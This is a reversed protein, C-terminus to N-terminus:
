GVNDIAAPGSPLRATTQHVVRHTLAELDRAALAGKCLRTLLVNQFVGGTLGVTRIGRARAARRASIAVAEAVAVHFGRALAQASAGALVRDALDRILPRYDIIGDPAVPLPLDAALVSREALVELENAARAEYAIRHRLGIISAAADFLLGMSTCSVTGSGISLQAAVMSREAGDCASVAPLRPNWAVGAAALYALATWCPNRVAAEGGALLVPQLHGFREVYGAAGEVLLIEGGWITGDWGCGAGDLTVGVVPESLRGHEALLAAVHAHHHQILRLAPEGQKGGSGRPFFGPPVQGSAGAWEARAHREAWARTHYGPHLDAPIIEPVPRRLTALEAVARDFARLTALDGM